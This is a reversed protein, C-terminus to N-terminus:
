VTRRRRRMVQGSGRRLVALGGLALLGTMAPEPIALVKAGFNAVPDGFFFLPYWQGDFSDRDWFSDESSGVTPPNYTALGAVTSDASAIWTFTDPVVVNPVSLVVTTPGNVLVNNCTTTWLPTGPVGPILYADLGDNEYFSLTLSSLTTEETSSLVLRFETITRDAGALTVQDGTPEYPWYQSFAWFGAPTWDGATPITTNDYVVVPVALAVSSTALVLAMSVIVFSFARLSAEFM